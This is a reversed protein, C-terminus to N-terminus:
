AMKDANHPIKEKSTAGDSGGVSSDKEAVVGAGLPLGRDEAEIASMVGTQPGTFNKKGDFIWTVVSVLGIIGFAASCYNMNDGTVPGVQPFNFDIGAFVLFVLGIANVLPSWKGLTYAGPMTKEHGTFYSWLRVFLPMAYSIYFGFTAISIVTSFGEYSAFYISNLAMQIVLCLIISNVPVQSKKNVKAFSKSFPLGHDRAFAWLARSGEAMLSNACILVIVTILAALTTAGKVSGTSDYFIQILPVGTSTTATAELDGICFFASILFIFGTVAGLWVSLIIAQPAEKAPNLMEETMHAPADYCCMGFLTNLLGLMVAMGGSAFGTENQFDAFVFSASQKHDNCALITIIVVFFSLINWIVAFTSIQNLYRSLFINVLAAAIAMLYTVLVCQWRQIEYDPYNLNAMGLLFNSGIFNNVAGMAVIGTCMFWGTVWAAGRAYRPPALIAVWSYQGGATPYASCMEAFSYAVALSLVCIGLWSWVMVPPGGSVIGLILTGGLATWCTVISFSFGVMGLLSFSRKLEQEYGLKALQAENGLTPDFAESQKGGHVISSLRRTAM